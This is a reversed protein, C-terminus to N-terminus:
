YRVGRKVISDVVFHMLRSPLLRNLIYTLRALKGPIIIFGSGNLGQIIGDVAENLGLSGALLKLKLTTPHITKHEERVMPTDVEPPCILQVKIGVPKLEIRLCNALGVVAFKSTCYASYGFNGVVGALSSIFVLKTPRGQMFPIVARAINLSGYLNVQLVRDFAVPDVQTFEGCATNIGACNIVIDPAGQSTVMKEVSDKVQQADTIDAIYLAVRQSQNQCASKVRAEAATSPQLDLLAVNAGQSAYRCAIELGLGSAGGTIIINKPTTRPNTQKVDSM